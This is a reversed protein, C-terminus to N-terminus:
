SRCASSAKSVPWTASGALWLGLAPDGDRTPTGTSIRHPRTLRRTMVDHEHCLIKAHRSLNGLIRGSLRHQPLTKERPQIEEYKSNSVVGCTIYVHEWARAAARM